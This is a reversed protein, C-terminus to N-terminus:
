GGRRTQRRALGAVVRRIAGPLNVGDSDKGVERIAAAVDAVAEALVLIATGDAGPVNDVHGVGINKNASRNRQDRYRAFANTIRAATTM